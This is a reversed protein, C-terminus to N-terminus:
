KFDYVVGKSNKEKLKTGYYRIKVKNKITLLYKM